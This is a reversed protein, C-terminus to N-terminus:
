EFIPAGGDFEGAEFRFLPLAAHDGHGGTIVRLAHGVVGIPETNPRGDHHRRLRREGLDLAGPTMAGLDHQM